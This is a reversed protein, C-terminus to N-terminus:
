VLKMAARVDGLTAQAVARAKATGEAIVAEIHTPDRALDARRERIPLLHANLREALESKCDVCGLAGSECGQRIAPRREANVIGHLAFVPCIDPRGPDNRRVKQPDTIMSRVKKTTTEASDAIDITNDYSKSMKRNDTGPVDPFESFTPQPEILTPGYLSNFRRVIERSLELHATQDKGVPVHTGRFAAIDCTQLVPYGLFGYTAIEKGLAGIQDKYTPTRELWAVPTIMGLLVSLESIEPVGSQLFITSKAPDVGAALWDVVMENRAARIIAPKEFGTTFAHLDAIEFFADAEDAYRTWQSLVGALHGFHLRGTSRMGSMIRRPLPGRELTNVANM